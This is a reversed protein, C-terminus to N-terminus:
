IIDSVTGISKLGAFTKVLKLTLITTLAMAELAETELLSKLLGNVIHKFTHICCRGVNRTANVVKFNALDNLITASVDNNVVLLM